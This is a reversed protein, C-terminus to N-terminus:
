FEPGFADEVHHIDPYQKENLIGIIDFRFEKDIEFQEIYAQAAEILNKQQKSSVSQIPDGFYGDSRTKVEVFVIETDSECIIDVELYSHRWNTAKISYGKSILLEKALKEGKNGISKNDM